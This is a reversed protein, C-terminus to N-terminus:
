STAAVLCLLLIYPLRVGCCRYNVVHTAPIMTIGSNDCSSTAKPIFDECLRAMPASASTPCLTTSTTTETHLLQQTTTTLTPILSTACPPLISGCYPLVHKLIYRLVGNWGRIAVYCLLAPQYKGLPCFAIYNLITNPLFIARQQVLPPNNESITTMYHLLQYLGVNDNRYCASLLLMPMDEKVNADLSPSHWLSKTTSSLVHSSLLPSFPLSM